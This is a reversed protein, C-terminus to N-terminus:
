KRISYRLEVIGNKYATVDELHLPQEQGIHNFFRKGDGLIIPLISLRIEDALRLRIFDKALMAGGVVWVNGYRPKLRENVLSNLDGSYIELNPRDVPLYRQTMVITPTNGYAWGHTKSLELAHEYTRSGMVYCDISKLFQETDQLTIGREYFDSTEFWSISNDTKAILGDLSSAMHITIKLTNAM